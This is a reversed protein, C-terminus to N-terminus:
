KRPRAAWRQDRVHRPIGGQPPVEQDPVAPREEDEQHRLGRDHVGNRGREQHLSRRGVEKHHRLVLGRHLQLWREAGDHRVRWREAQWGRHVWDPQGDLHDLLNRKQREM